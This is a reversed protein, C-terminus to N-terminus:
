AQDRIVELNHFTPPGDALGRLNESLKTTEPMDSNRMADEYSSFEAITLYHGPEDRDETVRVRTATSRGEAASRYEDLFKQGEEFRSTRYEVIQIFAM